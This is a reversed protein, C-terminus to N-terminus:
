LYKAVSSWITQPPVKPGRCVFVYLPVVTGSGAATEMECSRFFPAMENTKPAVVIMVEWSSDGPGWLYYTLHNSVAPPLGYAPGFLDIAAAPAYWFAFIGAKARDAPSLNEYVAAVDRVVDEWGMRLAFYEPIETTTGIFNRIPRYLFDFREAYAPLDAAPLIPLNAPAVFVGGALLLAAAAPKLASGIRRSELAEELWVAGAAILPLFLGALMWTRTHLFFGVVLSVLFMVGLFSFGRRFVRYLGLAYLPLLVPNMSFFINNLFEPVSAHYVRRSGYASWYTLTPWHNAANWLIYPALLVLFVAAALWPWRTLLDRRRATLLLAALFGPGWLPLTMKTLCATGALAGLLIWLRRDGTRLMRVLAFLFGALALQDLCDYTFVSDFTLWVPVALFALATLGVAFTKGGLERAILCALVLTGAGALAPVIHIALLSEGFLLRSGAMVLPALPPVDVYGFALHRSLAITYLEDMMYGYASGTLMHILFKAAAGPLILWAAPAVGLIRKESIM